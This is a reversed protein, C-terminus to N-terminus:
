AKLTWEKGPYGQMTMAVELCAVLEERSMGKDYAM